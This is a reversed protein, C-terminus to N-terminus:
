AEFRFEVADSSTIIGGIQKMILGSIDEGAALLFRSLAAGRTHSHLDNKAGCRVLAAPPVTCGGM